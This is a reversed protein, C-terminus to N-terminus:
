VAIHHDAFGLISRSLFQGPLIAILFAALLGAKNDMLEKGIFYVPFVVLAGIISPFFAGITDITSQSPTGGNLVFGAVLALFAIMQSFLPGFHITSGFPYLTFADYFIRNPFFQITNEVLRMHYVSDDMAFGVVGSGLVKDIPIIGRIYFSYLFIAFLILYSLYSINFFAGKGKQTDNKKKDTKEKYKKTSKVKAM